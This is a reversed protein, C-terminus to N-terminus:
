FEVLMLNECFKTCFCCYIFILLKKGSENSSSSEKETTKIPAAMGFAAKPVLATGKNKEFLAKRESVSLLAPDKKSPSGHEFMAVRNLIDNSKIPSKPKYMKETKSDNEIFKSVVRSVAKTEVPNDELSESSTENKEQITSEFIKKSKENNKDSDKYNYM